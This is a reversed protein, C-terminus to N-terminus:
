CFTWSYVPFHDFEIVSSWLSKDPIPLIRNKSHYNDPNNNNFQIYIYCKKCTSYEGTCYFLFISFFSVVGNWKVKSVRTKKTQCLDCVCVCIGNARQKM